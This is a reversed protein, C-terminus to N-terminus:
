QRGTIEDLKHFVQYNVDAAWSLYGSYYLSFWVAVSFVVTFATRMYEREKAQLVRPRGGSCGTHLQRGMRAGGVHRSVVFRRGHYGKGRGEVYARAVTYAKELAIYDVRRPTRMGHSPRYWSFQAPQSVVDCVTDPFLKSRVRNMVVSAVARMGKIGEGRAEHYINLALCAIEAQQPGAHAPRGLVASVALAAIAVTQPLKM